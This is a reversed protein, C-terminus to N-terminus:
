LGSEGRLGDLTLRHLRTYRAGNPTLESSFLSVAEVIMAGAAFARERDLAHGANVRPASRRVRGITIHPVFARTEPELGFERALRESERQISMLSEGRPELGVWLVSPRAASPFAGVGGIVAEVPPLAAAAPALREAYSDIFERSVNGLFRLTVHVNEPRTWSVQPLSARLRGVLSAIEARATADLEVALFARVREDATAM